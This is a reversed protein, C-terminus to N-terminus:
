LQDTLINIGNFYLIILERATAQSAIVATYGIIGLTTPTSPGPDVVTPHLTPHGVYLVMHKDPDVM